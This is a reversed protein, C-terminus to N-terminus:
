SRLYNIQGAYRAIFVFPRWHRGLFNLKTNDNNIVTALGAKTSDMTTVQIVTIMEGSSGTITM